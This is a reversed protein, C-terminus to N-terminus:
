GRVTALADDVGKLALFEMPSNAAKRSFGLINISTRAGRDVSYLEFHNGFPNRRLLMNKFFFVPEFHYARAIAVIPAEMM